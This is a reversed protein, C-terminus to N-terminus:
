ACVRVCACRVVAATKWNGWVTRRLYEADNKGNCFPYNAAACWAWLQQWAVGISHASNTSSFSAFLAKKRLRIEKLVNIKQEFSCIVM